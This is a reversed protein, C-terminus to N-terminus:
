RGYSRWSHQEILNVALLQFEPASSYMRLFKKSGRDWFIFALILYSKLYMTNTFVGDLLDKYKSVFITLISNMRKHLRCVHVGVHKWPRIMRM